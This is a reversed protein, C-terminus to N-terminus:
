YRYSFTLYAATDEAPRVRGGFYEYRQFYDEGTLNKITLGVSYASKTYSIATDVTHFSDAQFAKADDIYAKGQFYTGLGIKLGEYGMSALDHSVWVRGSNRAVGALKKGATVTPSANKTFEADVHAYSALLKWYNAFQWSLDSDFGTSKQEGTPLAPFGVAVNSRDIEFVAMQGTLKKSYDFKAGFEKSESEAPVPRANPAFVSFPQGRLGKSQSAFVSWNQTLDYVVGLRPLLEDEKTNQTSNLTLETYDVEVHAQRLGITTHWREGIDSQLQAYAGYTTNTLLGDQFTTFMSKAPQVYPTNFVPNQLDVTTGSDAFTLFGADKLESYDVGLLLTNRMMATSFKYTLNALISKEDQQQALFVNGLGWVSTGPVNPTNATFDFTTANYISQAKEDFKSESLRTQLNLSWKDNFKHDLNLRVGQYESFSDPINRNGIFLSENIRFNGAVTGTAPLGQYEQQEWRSFKGHLTVTTDVKNTFSIAPNINYRSQQLVDIDSETSTYEGTVRFFVQDSLPQNIDFFPQVFNNTGIRLGTEGFRTSEPKKSVINVVGGVPTGAGGSYLVSNAGKLVEIQQVNILGERDGTNYFQTFGDILQEAPFGRVKTTEFAPSSFPANRVVASANSLAEGATINQQEDIVTRNIIQISQPIERVPTDTRTSSFNNTVSYSNEQQGTVSVDPLEASQQAFVSTSGLVAILPLVLKQTM